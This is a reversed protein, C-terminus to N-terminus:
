SGPALLPLQKPLCTPSDIAPSHAEIVLSQDDVLWLGKFDRTDVHGHVEIKYTGAPVSCAVVTGASVPSQPASCLANYLDHTPSVPDGNVTIDYYIHGSTAQCEAFYHIVLTRPASTTIIKSIFLTDAALVNISGTDTHVSVEEAIVFSPVTLCVALLASLINQKVESRNVSNYMFVELFLTFLWTGRAGSSRISM